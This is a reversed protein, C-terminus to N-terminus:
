RRGGAWKVEVAQHLDPAIDNNNTVWDIIDEPEGRLEARIKKHMKANDLIIINPEDDGARAPGFAMCVKEIYDLMVDGNCKGYYDYGAHRKKWESCWVTKGMPLRQNNPKDSYITHLLTLRRSRKLCDRLRTNANTWSFSKYEGEQM